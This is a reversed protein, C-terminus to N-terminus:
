ARTPSSVRRRGRGYRPPEERLSLGDPWADPDPHVFSDDGLLKRDFTAVPLTGEAQACARILYDSFDGPGDRYDVLAQAIAASHEIQLEQAAALDAIANFIQQKTFGYFRALVWATEVVVVVSVHLRAGDSVAREFLRSAAACQEADDQVIWRVVVNTDVSIV